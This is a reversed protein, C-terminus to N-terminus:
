AGLPPLLKRKELDSILREFAVQAINFIGIADDRDLWDEPHMLPNRDLGRISDLAELLKADAGSKRLTDIYAGLGHGTPMSHIVLCVYDRVETELGRLMHFGAATYREFALCKGCEEIERNSTRSLRKWCGPSFASEIEDILTRPELARQRQVGVIYRRECEDEFVQVTRNVAAWLETVENNSLIHERPPQDPAVIVNIWVVVDKLSNCTEPFLTVHDQHDLFAWAEQRANVLDHVFRSLPQGGMTRLLSTLEEALHYIWVPNFDIM